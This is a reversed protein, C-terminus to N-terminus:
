ADEEDYVCVKLFEQRNLTVVKDDVSMIVGGVNAFSLNTYKKSKIMVVDSAGYNEVDDIIGVTEGDDFVAVKNILDSIFFKDDGVMDKLQERRAYLYQNKYLMAEEVSNVDKLHLAYGDGVKYSGTVELQDGNKTYLTSFKTINEADDLLPEVKLDGKIGQPKNVFAVAILENM